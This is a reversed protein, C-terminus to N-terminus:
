QAAIRAAEVKEQAKHLIDAKIRLVKEGSLKRADSAM